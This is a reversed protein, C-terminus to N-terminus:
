PNRDQREADLTKWRELAKQSDKLLARSKQIVENTTPLADRVDAISYTDIGSCINTSRVLAHKTDFKESERFPEHEPEDSAILQSFPVKEQPPDDAFLSALTVTAADHDVSQVIFRHLSDRARVREGFVLYYM